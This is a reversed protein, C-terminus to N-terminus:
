KLLIYRLGTRKRNPLCRTYSNCTIPKTFKSRVGACLSGSCTVPGAHRAAVHTIRTSPMSNERSHCLSIRRWRRSITSFARAWSCDSAAAPSNTTLPLLEADPRPPASRRGVRVAAAARCSGCSLRWSSFLSRWCSTLPHTVVAHLRLAAAHLFNVVPKVDNKSFRTVAWSVSSRIETTM